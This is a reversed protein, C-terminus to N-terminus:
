HPNLWCESTYIVPLQMNLGSIERSTVESEVESPLKCHTM